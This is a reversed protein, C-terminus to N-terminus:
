LHIDVHVWVPCFSPWLQYIELSNCPLMRCFPLNLDIKTTHNYRILIFFVLTCSSQPLISILAAGSARCSCFGSVTLDPPFHLRWFNNMKKPSECLVTCTYAESCCSPQFFLDSCPMSFHLFRYEGLIQSFAQGRFQQTTNPTAAGQWFLFMSANHLLFM